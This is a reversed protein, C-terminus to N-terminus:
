PEESDAIFEKGEFTYGEAESRRVFDATDHKSKFAMRWGQGPKPGTGRNTARESALVVATGDPVIRYDPMEQAM